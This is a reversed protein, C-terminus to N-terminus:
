KIHIEGNVLDIKMAYNSENAGKNYIANATVTSAEIGGIVNLRNILASSVELRDASVTGTTIKGGDITTSNASVGESWSSFETKDNPVEGMYAQSVFCYPDTSTVTSRVYFKAYSTGAPVTVFGGQRVWNNLAGSYAVGNGLGVGIESTYTGASNYFALTCQSTCRHSSLLASIEYRKGAVVPINNSQGIDFVTGVTPAGGVVVYVSGAGTPRWTDFGAAVANPVINTNYWHVNWGYTENGLTPASNTLLNNSSTGLSPVDTVNSFTVKGNFVINSGSISFPKYGVNSASTIEFEDAKIWFKSTYLPYSIGGILVNTGSSAVSKLGFGSNYAKGNIALISNYAFNSEVRAGEANIRADVTNLLESQAGVTTGLAALEVNLNTVSESSAIIGNATQTIWSAGNWYYVYLDKDTTNLVTVIDGVDLKATDYTVWSTGNLVKLNKTTDLWYKYTGNTTPAAAQYVGYMHSVKGDATAQALSASKLALLAASDTLSIWANTTRSYYYGNGSITFYGIDGNHERKLTDTTWTSKWSNLQTTEQAATTAVSNYWYNIKGDVQNQLTEITDTVTDIFEELDETDNVLKTWESATFTGSTRDVLATLIVGASYTGVANDTLIILMDNKKYMNPKDSTTYITAKGDAVDFVYKSVDATESWSTTSHVYKYVKGKEYVGVDLTCYWYDGNNSATMGTPVTSQYYTEVKSDIQNQLNTNLATIDASYKTAIVWVTGSYQYIEGKVYTTTGVTVNASPIWVDRAVGTTPVTSGSFVTRKGDALDALATINSDTTIENWVSGSYKYTRTIDYVQTLGSALVKSATTFWLYIDNLSVGSPQGSIPLTEGSYIAVKKDMENSLYSFFTTSTDGITIVNPDLPTSGDVIGNVVEDNTYDVEAFTIPSISTCKYVKGSVYSGSSSSPIWIDSLALGQAITPVSNGANGFIIRKKDALDFASKSIDSSYTWTYNFKSGNASELYKYIKGKSYTGDTDCYWYDGGRADKAANTKNAFPPIAGGYTTEIKNDIQSSLLSKIEDYRTAKEWLSGTYRYMENLTYTITSATFTSTPIFLDNVRLPNTTSNSPLSSGSYITRKGDTLDALKTLNNNNSIQVWASGSYKWTNVVDVVVGTSGTATTKEIFIDNIKMGTQASHDTGSFVVVEKDIEEAIYSTLSKSGDISALSLNVQVSGNALGTSLAVVANDDTAAQAWDSESYLGNGKTINAALICRWIQTSGGVVRIWLDGGEYPGVPTDVFVRRKDDALDYANLAAVYANQADTDVILAWTYGETDTSYPSTVDVITKIFKYARDYTKYGEATSTYKIYVDGVHAARLWEKNLNYNAVTTEVWASNEVIYYKTNITDKYVRNVLEGNYTPMGNGSMPAWSAYPEVGTLLRDNDINTNPNEIGSMVDYTGTTTEIVGDNQKQLISVNALLGTGVLGGDTDIGVYTNLYQVAESRAAVEEDLGDGIQATLRTYDLARASDVNAIALQLNQVAAAIDGGSISASLIGIVIAQAEEPTVRTLAIDLITSDSDALTSNLTTIATNIREDIDNSSIISQTYTNKAVDLEAILGNLMDGLTSVDSLAGLIAANTVTDIIDRLWQPADEYRKPIYLEDGVISYERRNVTVELEKTGEGILVNQTNATIELPNDSVILEPTKIELTM